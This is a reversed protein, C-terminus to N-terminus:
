SPVLRCRLLRMSPPGGLPGGESTLAVLGDPGVGVGEGQIERLTRLNVLGGEVPVLRGDEPRYFRLAQYTRIAVWSGDPSASAGTVRNLLPEPGDTLRQVEELTVIDPRLAGPYRYVTVPHNAGKTVLYVAEDPLVFLAEVDRPGDPLRVPFADLASVLGTVGPRVSPEATRLIRVNGDPRREGNDGTDALYLCSGATACAGVDLDEWDSLRDEIEFRGLIAGRRDLAYLDSHGDNHTWLVDPSRRGIAAGSTEVLERSLEMAPGLETCGPGATAFPACALAVLAMCLAGLVPLAATM